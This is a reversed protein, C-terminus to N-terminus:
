LIVTLTPKPFVSFCPYNVKYVRLAITFLSVFGQGCGGVAVIVTEKSSGDPEKQIGRHM